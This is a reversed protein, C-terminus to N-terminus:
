EEETIQSEDEQNEQLKLNELANNIAINFNDLILVDKGLYKSKRVAKIDDYEYNPENYENPIIVILDEPYQKLIEILKRVIM